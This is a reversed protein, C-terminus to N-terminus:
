SVARSRRCPARPPARDGSDGIAVHHLLDLWAPATSEPGPQMRRLLVHLLPPDSEQCEAVFRIALDADDVLRNRLDPLSSEATDLMASLRACSTRPWTITPVPSASCHPSIATLIPPRPRWRLSRQPSAHTTRTHSRGCSRPLPPACRRHGTRASSPWRTSTRAVRCNQWWRRCAVASPKSAIPPLWTSPLELPTPGVVSGISRPRARVSRGCYRSHRIQDTVSHCRPLLGRWIHSSRAKRGVTSCRCSSRSTASLRRRDHVYWPAAPSTPSIM